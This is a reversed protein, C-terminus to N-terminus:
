LIVPQVEYEAYDWKLSEAHVRDTLNLGYVNQFKVPVMEESCFVLTVYFLITLLMTDLREMDGSFLGFVRDDPM